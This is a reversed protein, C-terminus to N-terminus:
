QLVPSAFVGLIPGLVLLWVLALGLYRRDVRGSQRQLQGWLALSALGGLVIGGVHAIDQYPYAASPPPVILFAILGNFLLGWIAVFAVACATGTRSGRMGVALAVLWGGATVGIRLANAAQAPTMVEATAGYLGIHYDVLVHVLVVALAAGNIAIVAAPRSLRDLSAWRSRHAGTAMGMDDVGDSMVTRQGGFDPVLAVTAHDGPVVPPVPVQRPRLWDREAAPVASM